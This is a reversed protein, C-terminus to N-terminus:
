SSSGCSSGSSSGCSSGGGGGSSGCSSGGSGGSCSSGGSGSGSDSSSSGCSSKGSASGACWLVAAAAYTTSNASDPSSPTSRTTRTGGPTQRAAKRLRKRLLPDPLARLGHVAVLHGAGTRDAHSVAYAAAAARGAPTIRHAARGANVAGCVLGLVLAPLVMFIFPTFTVVVSVVIAVPLGLVCALLLTISGTRWKRSTRPPIMLGRHALSDGIDQVAANRMVAHRLTHLAGNPAAALEALVAREVPDHAVSSLASAVGPRGVALRGDACMAALAADVTRSPGGNLFAVEMLDHDQGPGNGSGRHLASIGRTLVICAAVMALTILLALVTITM